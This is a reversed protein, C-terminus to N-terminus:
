VVGSELGDEVLRDDVKRCKPDFPGDGGLGVHQRGGPERPEHREKSSIGQDRGELGEPHTGIERAAGEMQEPLQLSGLFVFEAVFLRPLDQVLDALALQGYEALLRV